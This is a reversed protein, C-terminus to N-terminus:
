YNLLEKIGQEKYAPTKRIRSYSSAHSILIAEDTGGLSILDQPRVVPEDMYSITKSTNGNAVSENFSVTRKKFTGCLSCL